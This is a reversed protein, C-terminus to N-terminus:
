TKKQGIQVPEDWLLIRACLAAMRRLAACPRMAVVLLGEARVVCMIAGVASRTSNKSKTMLMAYFEDFTQEFISDCFTDDIILDGLRSWRRWM